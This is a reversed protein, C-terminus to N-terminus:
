TRNKKRLNISGSGVVHADHAPQRLHDFLAAHPRQPSAVADVDDFDGRLRGELEHRVLLYSLHSLRPTESARHKEHGNM